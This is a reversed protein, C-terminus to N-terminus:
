PYRIGIDLFPSALAGTPAGANKCHSRTASQTAEYEPNRGIHWMAHIKVAGV